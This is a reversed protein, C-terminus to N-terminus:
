EDVTSVACSGPKSRDAMALRVLGVDGLVFGDRCPLVLLLQEILFQVTLQDDAPPASRQVAMM